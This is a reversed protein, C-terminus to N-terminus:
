GPRLRALFAVLFFHRSIFAPRMPARLIFPVFTRLPLSTLRAMTRALRVDLGIAVRRLNEPHTREVCLLRALSTQRTMFRVCLVGIKQPRCVQGVSDPTRTAVRDM